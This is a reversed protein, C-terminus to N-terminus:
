FWSSIKGGLSKVVEVTKGVAKDEVFAQVGVTKGFLECGPGGGLTANCVKTGVDSALAVHGSVVKDFTSPKPPDDVYHYVGKEDAVMKRGGIYAFTPGTPPPTNSSSGAPYTVPAKGDALNSTITSLSGIKPGGAPAAAAEVTAASAKRLLLFVVAAAAAIMLLTRNM